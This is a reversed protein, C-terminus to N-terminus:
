YNSINVIKLVNFFVHYSGPKLELLCCAPPPLVSWLQIFLKKLSFNFNLSSLIYKQTLLVSSNTKNMTIIITIINAIIIIAPKMKDSSFFYLLLAGCSLV